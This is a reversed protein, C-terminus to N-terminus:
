AEPEAEPEGEPLGEFLPEDEGEPESHIVEIATVSDGERLNMLKVGQTARGMQSIQKVETRIIMGDATIILLEDEDTVKVAAVVPGSKETVKMAIV